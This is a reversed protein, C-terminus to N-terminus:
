AGGIEEFLLKHNEDRVVCVVGPDPGGPGRLSFRFDELPPNSHKVGREFKPQPPNGDIKGGVQPGPVGSVYAHFGLCDVEGHSM